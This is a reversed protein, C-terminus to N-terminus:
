AVVRRGLAAEIDAIITRLDTLGPHVQLARLYYRVAGRYDERLARLHGLGAIASFHRPNHEITAEYAAAAEEIRDLAELALARQHHLEAFGADLKIGEDLALLAEEAAGANLREIAVRLKKQAAKSGARMWIHWLADEAASVVSPEAHGLLAVLATCSESSGTMGLCNAALRTVRADAAALLQSLREPPWNARLRALATAFDGARLSPEIAMLFSTEAHSFM